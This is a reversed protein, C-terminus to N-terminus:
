QIKGKLENIVDIRVILYQEGNEDTVSNNPNLHFIDM